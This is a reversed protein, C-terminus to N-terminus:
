EIVYIYVQSLRSLCAYLTLLMRALQAINIIKVEGKIPDSLDLERRQM